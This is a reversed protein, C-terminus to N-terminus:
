TGIRGGDNRQIVVTAPRPRRPDSRASPGTASRPRTRPPPRASSTTGTRRRSARTSSTSSCRADPGADDIVGTIECGRPGTLFRRVEGTDPDAALMQNNGIRDYGRSALNQSSNSIDTQIWVCGTPTSGSATPRASSPSTPPFADRDYAPDGALLFVDWDFATDTTTRRRPLARHPRVPQSRPRQQGRRRQRTGNTLTVFVDGRTRTVAVWEPRHLRTAGVADAAM